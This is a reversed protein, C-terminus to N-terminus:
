LSNLSRKSTRSLGKPRKNSWPPILSPSPSISPDMIHVNSSIELRPSHDHDVHQGYTTVLQSLQAEAPNKMSMRLQLIQAFIYSLLTKREEPLVRELSSLEFSYRAHAFINGRTQCFIFPAPRWGNDCEPRVPVTHFDFLIFMYHCFSFFENLIVPIPQLPRGFLALIENADAERSFNHLFRRASKKCGFCHSNANLARNLIIISM